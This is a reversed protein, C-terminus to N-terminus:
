RRLDDLFPLKERYNRLTELDLSARIVREEDGADALLEGSPDAVLSRGNYHFQPDDGARNVGIVFAQNEIARAQLLRVWHHIRKDPWSAIVVYLEPRQRAAERFLEPFRLDYCIFLAVKAAGWAFVTPSSGAAYHRHEDGPAFPRQKRYSAATAGGPDCVVLENGPGAGSRERVFGGVLWIGLRKSLGQMWSETPGGEPEAAARLTFGTTFMEPLVVLSGAPPAEKVIWHEARVRNSAPDEWALDMQVGLVM